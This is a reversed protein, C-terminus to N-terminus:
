AQRGGSVYLLCNRGANFTCWHPRVRASWRQSRYASSRAHAHPLSPPRAPACLCHYTGSRRRNYQSETCATSYQWEHLGNLVAMRAPDDVAVDLGLVEDEGVFPLQVLTVGGPMPDRFVMFDRVARYGARCPIRGPVADRVARCTVDAVPPRRLSMSKPKEHVILGPSVRFSLRPVPAGNRSEGGVDAGRSAAWM